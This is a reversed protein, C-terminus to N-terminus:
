RREACNCLAPSSLPTRHLRSQQSLVIPWLDIARTNCNSQLHFLGPWETLEAQQGASFKACGQVNWRAPIDFRMAPFAALVHNFM